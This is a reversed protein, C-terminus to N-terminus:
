LDCVLWPFVDKIQSVIAKEMAEKTTRQALWLSLGELSQGDRITKNCGDTYVHKDTQMGLDKNRPIAAM